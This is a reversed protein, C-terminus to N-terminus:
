SKFAELWLNELIKHRADPVIGSINSSYIIMSSGSRISRIVVNQVLLEEICLWDIAHLYTNRTRIINDKAKNSDNEIDDHEFNVLQTIPDNSFKLLKDVTDLIRILDKSIDYWTINDIIYRNCNDCIGYEPIEPDQCQYSDEFIYAIAFIKRKMKELYNHQITQTEDSSEIKTGVIILLECIDAYSYLVISKAQQGDRSARGVEQVFNTLSLSFTTHIIIRIDSIHIGIGFANTAVIYKLKKNSWLRLTITQDASRIKGHYIGLKLNPRKLIIALKSAEEDSCTAILLLIPSLPFEEKIQGLKAWAPLVKTIGVAVEGFIKEQEELPQDSAAYVKATPIGIEVLERLQCGMVAKLLTFVVTLAKTLISTVSFILTKGAGTLLITLTDQISDILEIPITVNQNKDSRYFKLNIIYFSLRHKNYFYYLRCLEAKPSYKPFCKCGECLIFRDFDPILNAFSPRFEQNIISDKIKIEYPILD